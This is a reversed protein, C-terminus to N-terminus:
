KRATILLYLGLNPCLGRILRRPWSLKAIKLLPGQHRQVVEGMLPDGHNLQIKVDVEAFGECLTEAEAVSYAKTGPSELHDSYIDAMSTGIQGTLLAYRIWLMYGSLSHTHYIM